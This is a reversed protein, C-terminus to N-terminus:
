AMQLTGFGPGQLLGNAVAYATLQVFAPRLERLMARVNDAILLHDLLEPSQNLLQVRVDPSECHWLSLGGCCIPCCGSLFQLNGARVALVLM